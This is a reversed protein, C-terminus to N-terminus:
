RAGRSEVLRLGGILTNLRSLQFAPEPRDEAGIALVFGRGRDDRRWPVSGGDPVGTKAFTTWRALMRREVARDVAQMPVGLCGCSTANGFVFPVEGGHPVGFPRDTAGAPVHEFWYRWTPARATHLWAIRKAFATFAVDRVVERGLRADDTVDPYLPRTLLRAAGLRAVLDAPDLGFATAVTAEDSNSGIVLPVPAQTGRRFAELLPAPFAADGVVFSPALTPAADGLEAFREAPVARLAAATARAGPLGLATAIATGTDVAKRRPHSPIGYASQAVARQFLGRAPPSAMLALVSQAGASEGFVTVQAPDGGFAAINERVWRLAAIQDLLGFNVPGGPRARELAPHAFFGLAGLRYNPAVVVVGQRALARGDYIALSGGGLVLAGGHLWVMVPLRRADGAAAPTFVDLTLCDESVAEVRSGELSAGRRQMCSPGPRTAPRVDAWPTPPQPARWRREGVPPAAYPIARFVAIGADVAGAVRGTRLAREDAAVTPAAAILAGGLLAAAAAPRWPLHM